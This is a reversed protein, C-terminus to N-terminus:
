HLTGDPRHDAAPDIALLLRAQGTGALPPSRHLLGAAEAGPWLTGRLIAASGTPMELAATDQGPQAFWTGAGRYTCLMRATVHDIHFRRCAATTIVSLRVHLLPTQMVEAMIFALAAIDSALMDRMSGRPTGALDCAAQVCHEAAGVDMLSRLPPLVSRCRM